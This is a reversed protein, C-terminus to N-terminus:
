YIVIFKRDLLLVKDLYISLAPSTESLIKMANEYASTISRISENLESNNLSNETM